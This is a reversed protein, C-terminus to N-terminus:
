REEQKKRTCGYRANKDNRAASVHGLLLPGGRFDVSRIQGTSTEPGDGPTEPQDRKQSYKGGGRCHDPHRQRRDDQYSRSAEISKSDAIDVAIDGSKRGGIILDHKRSFHDSVKKGITGNGGIVIIKM